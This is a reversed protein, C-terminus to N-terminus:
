TRPIIKRGVLVCAVGIIISGIGMSGGLIPFLWLDVFSNIRAKQPNESDYLISVSDGTTYAPPNRGHRSTFTHQANAKDKFSLVPYYVGKRAEFDSVVAMMEVSKALFTRSGLYLVIGFGFPVLSSIILGVGGIKLMTAITKLM